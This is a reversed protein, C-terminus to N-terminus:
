QGAQTFAALSQVKPTGNAYYLGFDGGDNSTNDDQWEYILLPGAWSWQKAQTYSATIQQALTADTCDAPYGGDTGTPCGYETLWIKKSSDGNAQMVAYVSPLNYFMNSASAQMPMLPYSYPHINVADFYGKAGAAYMATLYNVPYSALSPDDYTGLGSTLITSSPDVQKIATYAAQLYPVYQAATVTPSYLNVENLVEYTEVGLPELTDVAQTAFTGMEAATAPPFDELIAIIKFGYGSYDQAYNYFGPWVDVRVWTVNASKMEAVVAARQSTTMTNFTVEENYGPDVGTNGPDIGAAANFQVAQSNTNSGGSVLSASGSLIGDAAYSSSYPTEAFSTFLLHVGIIAITAITVIAIIKHSSRKVYKLLHKM